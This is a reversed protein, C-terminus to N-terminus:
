LDDLEGTNLGIEFARGIMLIEQVWLVFDEQNSDDINMAALLRDPMNTIIETSLCAVAQMISDRSPPLDEEMLDNYWAEVIPHVQACSSGNGLQANALDEFEDLWDPRPPNKDM